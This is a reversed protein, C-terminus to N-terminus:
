HAIESAQAHSVSAQIIIGECFSLFPASAQMLSIIKEHMPGALVLDDCKQGQLSTRSALRRDQEEPAARALSIREQGTKWKEDIRKREKDRTKSRLKESGWLVIEIVIGIICCVVPTWIVGALTYTILLKPDVKLKASRHM